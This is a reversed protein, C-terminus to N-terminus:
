FQAETTLDERDRHFKITVREGGRTDAVAAVLAEPTEITHEAYEVIVDHAKLGADDGISGPAVRLISAGRIDRNEVLDVGFQEDTHLLHDPDICVVKLIASKGTVVTGVTQRDMVVAVKGQRRCYENADREVDPTASCAPVAMVVCSFVSAFVAHAPRIKMLLM